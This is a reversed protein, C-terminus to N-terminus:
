ESATAVAVQMAYCGKGMIGFLASMFDPRSVLWIVVEDFNDGESMNWFRFALLKIEFGSFAYKETVFKASFSVSKQVEFIVGNYYALVYNKM